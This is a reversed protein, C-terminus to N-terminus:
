GLSPEDVAVWVNWSSPGLGLKASAKEGSVFKYSNKWNLVLKVKVNTTLNRVFITVRSVGEGLPKVEDVTWVGVGTPIRKIQRFDQGDIIYRLLRASDKSGDGTNNIIAQELLMQAPASLKRNLQDYYSNFREIAQNLTSILRLRQRDEDRETIYQTRWGSLISSDLADTFFSNEFIKEFTQKGIARDTKKGFKLEIHIDLGSSLTHIIDAGDRNNASGSTFKIDRYSTNSDYYINVIDLQVVNKCNELIETIQTWDKGRLVLVRKSDPIESIKEAYTAVDACMALECLRVCMDVDAM